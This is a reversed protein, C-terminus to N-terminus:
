AGVVRTALNEHRVVALTARTSSSIPRNSEERVTGLLEEAGPMLVPMPMPVPVPAHQLYPMCMFPLIPLYLCGGRALVAILMPMPKPMIPIPMPM